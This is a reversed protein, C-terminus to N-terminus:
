AAEDRQAGRPCCPRSLLQRETRHIGLTLGSELAERSRVGIQGCTCALTVRKGTEDVRIAVWAGYRRGAQLGPPDFPDGTM